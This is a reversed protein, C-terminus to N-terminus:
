NGWDKGRREIGWKRGGEKETGQKDKAKDCNIAFFNMIVMYIFEMMYNLTGFYFFIYCLVIWTFIIDHSFLNTFFDLLIVFYYEEHAPLNGNILTVMFFNIWSSWGTEHTFSHKRGGEGTGPFVLYDWSNNEMLDHLSMFFFPIFSSVLFLVQWKTNDVCLSFGSLDSCFLKHFQRCNVHLFDLLAAKTVGVVRWFHNLWAKICLWQASQVTVTGFCRCLCFHPTQISAQSSCAFGESNSEGMDVKAKTTVGDWRGDFSQPKKKAFCCVGGQFIDCPRAWCRTSGLGKKLIIVNKEVMGTGIREGTRDQEQGQERYRDFNVPCISCAVGKLIGCEGRGKIVCLLRGSPSSAGVGRKGVTTCAVRGSLSLSGGGKVRGPLDQAQHNTCELLWLSETNHLIGGSGISPNVITTCSHLPFSIYYNSTGSNCVGSCKM